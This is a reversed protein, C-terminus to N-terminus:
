FLTRLVNMQIILISKYIHNEIRIGSAYTSAVEDISYTINIADSKEFPLGKKYILFGNKKVKESFLKYNNLMNSEDGYVDLHDPDVSTIVAIDPNLNLFSKDYEDAEVVMTDNGSGSSLLFNSNYNNSIGGFFATCEVGSSKLIHAVMCSTTTKGHTGAVAITYTNESILGLIESRKYLQYGSKLLYNKGVHNEPIAPTYIILVDSNVVSGSLQIPMSNIKDAFSITIGESILESTLPTSTKDYGSVHKGKALFYRALASMGIGGIGILYVYKIKEFNM